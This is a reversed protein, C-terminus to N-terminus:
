GPNEGNEFAMHVLEAFTEAEMNKMVLSRHQEVTKISLGLEDAIIKNSKGDVMLDMVERQRETLSALRSQYRHARNADQNIEESRALALQIADLLRQQRFPKEIFDLAGKKLANVAIPVDAHGSIVVTPLVINQDLLASQLDLGSMGPLRVDTVLCEPGANRGARYENLFQQASNYVQTKLGVSKVILCIAGLHAEDDEVIHVIAEHVM